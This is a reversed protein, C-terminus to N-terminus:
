ELIPFCEILCTSTSFSPLNCPSIHFSTPHRDVSDNRVGANVVLEDTPNLDRMNVVMLGFPGGKYIKGM